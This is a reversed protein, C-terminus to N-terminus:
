KKRHKGKTEIKEKRGQLSNINLNGKEELVYTTSNIM